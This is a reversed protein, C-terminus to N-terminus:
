RPCWCRALFEVLRGPSSVLGVEAVDGTRALIFPTIMLEREYEALAAFIGALMRGTATSYDVGERLSRLLVGAGALREVTRIVGSLSRDGSPPRAPVCGPSGVAARPLNMRAGDAARGSHQM